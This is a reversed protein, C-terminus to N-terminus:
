IGLTGSHGAKPTNLIKKVYDAVQHSSPGPPKNINIIGYEILKEITRNEPNCGYDPNSEVDKKVAIERKIKEFPLLTEM